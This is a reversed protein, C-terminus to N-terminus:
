GRVLYDLLKMTDEPEYTIIEVENIRADSFIEALSIYQCLTSRLNLRDGEATILEVKGKCQCVVDLFKKVDKINKVKM